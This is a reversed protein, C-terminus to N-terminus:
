YYCKRCATFGCEEAVSCPMERADVIGSCEPDSHYKTGGHMPIWVTPDEYESYYPMDLLAYLTNADLRGNVTLGYERQFARVAARTADGFYPVSQTSYGRYYSSYYDYEYDEQVGLIDQFWGVPDGYDEYSIYYRKAAANAPLACVLLMALALALTRRLKM